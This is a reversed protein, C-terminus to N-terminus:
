DDFRLDTLFCASYAISLVACDQLRGRHHTGAGNRGNAEDYVIYKESRDRNM